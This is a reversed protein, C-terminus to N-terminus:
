SAVEVSGAKIGAFQYDRRFLSFQNEVEEEIHVLQSIQIM